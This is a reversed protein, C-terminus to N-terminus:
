VTGVNRCQRPRMGISMIRYRAEDGAHDESRKKDVDNMDIEHRPLVPVTRIFQTCTDFIFLGSHERPLPSGTEECIEYRAYKMAQRMKEWGAVRSGPSKDSKAWQVGPYKIGNVRVPKMMDKSICNGNRLSHIENDAPGPRVRGHLGMALEREVIGAAIETALLNLGKNPKGTWGYWEAIRFLDGAVTSVWGRNTLVDEGVSEWWWGVSF